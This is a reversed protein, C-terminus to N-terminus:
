FDRQSELSPVNSILHTWSLCWVIMDIICDLLMLWDSRPLWILSSPTASLGNPQVRPQTSHRAPRRCKAVLDILPFPLLREPMEEPLLHILETCRHTLTVTSCPSPKIPNNKNLQTVWLIFVDFQRCLSQKEVKFKAGLFIFVVSWLSTRAIESAKKKKTSRHIWLVFSCVSARTVNRRHLFLGLSRHFAERQSYKSSLKLYPRTICSWKKSELCVSQSLCM